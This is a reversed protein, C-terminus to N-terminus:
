PIRLCLKKQYGHEDCKDKRQEGTAGAVARHYHVPLLFDILHILFPVPRKHILHVLVAGGRHMVLVVGHVPLMSGLLSPDLLSLLSFDGAELADPM